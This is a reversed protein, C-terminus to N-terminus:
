TLRSLLENIIELGDDNEDAAREHIKKLNELDKNKSAEEAASIYDGNKVYLAIKSLYSKESCQDIYNSILKRPAGYEMCTEAITEFGIPSKLINTSSSNNFTIFKHLNEFDGSKCYIELAINWFKEQPVKFDNAIKTAPKIQHMRILRMLIEILSKEEFFSKQYTESLKRKLDLVEIEFKLASKFKQNGLLTQLKNRHVQYLSEFSEPGSISSREGLFKKLKLMNRQSTKNRTKLYSDLAKEETEAILNEWFNGLLDGNIFLNEKFLSGTQGDSQLEKMSVDKLMSKQENQDLVQLFQAPSLAERLYMLILRCLDYESSQFCKILALEVEGIKLLQRVKGLVTPELNILLKCLDLRGEEYAVDEIDTVSILNKKTHNRTHDKSAILKKHIAKFLDVDTADPETKIKSCCWHIYVLSRCDHLKLLDIVKLALLYHSRTLLMLIIEKWGIKEIENITLFLGIEPSRIQNLVKVKDLVGLYKDSDFYNSEYIKGFSVAKLIKKQWTPSFEDLAAELCGNMATTLTDEANLFSINTYAKSPQLSLKDVCDLLILSPHSSGVLHLNICCDPVRSLFEVKNGTIIKLGDRESKILPITFMLDNNANENLITDIDFDDHEIIDYFFSISKQGPGILKIEDRLSLIIADNGAWEMMYPASSENSTDYELLIRDFNKTIVFIKSKLNNHLAVLSGNPSASILSFPGDTLGEDDFSFTNESLDISILYVTLDYSLLCEFGSDKTNLVSLALIKTPDLITAFSVEYNIFSLLDSVIIKDRFRLVLFRGWIKAEIVLFTEEEQNTELNTIVYRVSTTDLSSESSSGTLQILNDTYTHESFSGKFDTYVRYKNTSLIVILCENYFGFDVIYDSPSLNYVLSWLKIGNLSYIDIVSPYSGSKAALALLTTNTSVAIRYNNYLNEIPWQLSEYCTRISYYVNQLKQWGLSPNPPMETQLIVGGSYSQSTRSAGLCGM